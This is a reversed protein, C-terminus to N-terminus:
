YWKWVSFWIPQVEIQHSGMNVNELSIRLMLGYDESLYDKMYYRASMHYYHYGINRRTVM